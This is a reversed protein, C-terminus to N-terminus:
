KVLTNEDATNISVLLTTAGLSLCSLRADERALPAVFFIYCAGTAQDTARVDGGVCPAADVPPMDVPPADVPPPADIAAKTTNDLGALQACAALPLVFAPLARSRLM